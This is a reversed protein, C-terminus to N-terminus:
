RACQEKSAKAGPAQPCSRYSTLVQLTWKGDKCAFGGRICMQDEFYGTQVVQHSASSISDCSNPEAGKSPAKKFTELILEPGEVTHNDEMMAVDPAALARFSDEDDPTIDPVHATLKVMDGWMKHLETPSCFQSNAQNGPDLPNRFAQASSAGPEVDAAPAEAPPPDEGEDRLGAAAFLLCLITACRALAM